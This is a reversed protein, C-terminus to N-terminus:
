VLSSSSVRIDRFNNGLLSSPWTMFRYAFMSVWFIRSPVDTFIVQVHPPTGLVYVVADAIDESKLMPLTKLDFLGAIEASQLIETDVAGPCISQPPNIHIM